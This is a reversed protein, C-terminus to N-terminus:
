DVENEKTYYQEILEVEKKFSNEKLLNLLATRDYAVDMKASKLGGKNLKAIYDKGDQWFHASTIYIAKFKKGEGIEKKFHTKAFPLTRDFFWKLSGKKNNDGLPISVSSNYGKLEVVVIEEPNSSNFIYDYEYGEKKGTEDKTSYTKGRVVSASSYISKLVPFMLVEFLVGRLDKLADEQGASRIVKLVDNVSREIDRDALLLDNVEKLKNLIMYIQTGFISGIDFALFGLKKLKNLVEDSCSKYVVIPMIKRVGSKVSNINIQVRALFGDLDLQKYDESLVVDLVVLTQKDITTAEAGLMPNIGTVKTYGYADWYLNNQKAGISPKKKNRYIANVNELLNSKALWRIIDPMLSSDIIMKNYHQAMLKADTTVSNKDFDDRFIIYNIGNADGKEYVLELKILIKLMDQLTNVKTSSSQDVSATIKLGEYHSIIGNNDEMAQLLRYLPPRKHRCILKIKTVDLDQDPLLYIYQGNGFTYPKSSKIDRTKAAREIIKRAHADNVYFKDVLLKRLEGGSQFLKELLINYIFAGYKEQESENLIKTM